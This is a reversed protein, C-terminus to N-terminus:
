NQGAGSIVTMNKRMAQIIIRLTCTYESVVNLRIAAERSFVRFDGPADPIKM